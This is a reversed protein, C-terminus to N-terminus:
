QNCSYWAIPEISAIALADLSSMKAFVSREESFASVSM